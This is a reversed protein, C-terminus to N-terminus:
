CEEWREDTYNFYRGGSCYEQGRRALWEAFPRPLRMVQGEQGPLSLSVYKGNVGSQRELQRVRRSLGRM